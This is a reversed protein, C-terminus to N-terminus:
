RLNTMCKLSTTLIRYTCGAAEPNGNTFTEAANLQQIARNEKIASKDRMIFIAGGGLEVGGGNAMAGTTSPKYAWENGSIESNGYMRFTASQVGVGGGAGNGEIRCNTVKADDKMICITEGYNGGTTPGNLRIAIGGGSVSNGKAACNTILATKELTLQGGSYVAAGGGMPASCGSIEADKIVAQGNYAVALGGGYVASTDIFANNIIRAGGSLIFTGGEVLVLPATNDLGNRAASIGELTIDGDVELTVGRGVYLLAGRDTAAYSVGGGGTRKLALTKRYEGSNRLRVTISTEGTYEFCGAAGINKVFSANLRRAAPTLRLLAAEYRALDIELVDGSEANVAFDELREAFAASDRATVAPDLPQKVTNEESGDDGSPNGCAAFLGILGFAALLTIFNKTKMDNNRRSILPCHATSLM